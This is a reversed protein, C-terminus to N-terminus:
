FYQKLLFIFLLKSIREISEQTEVRPAHLPKEHAIEATARAAREALFKVRCGPSRVVIIGMSAFRTM